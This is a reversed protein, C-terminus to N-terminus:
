ATGRTKRHERWLAIGTAVGVGLIWTGFGVGIAAEAFSRKSEIWCGDPGCMAEGTGLWGTAGALVLFFLAIGVGVL